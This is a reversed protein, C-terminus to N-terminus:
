WWGMWDSDGDDDSDDSGSGSGGDWRMVIVMM